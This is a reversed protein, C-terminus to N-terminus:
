KGSSWPLSRSSQWRFLLLTSHPLTPHCRGHKLDKRKWSEAWSYQGLSAQVIGPMAEGGAAGESNEAPATGAEAPGPAGGGAKNGKGKSNKNKKKGATVEASPLSAEPQSGAPPIEKSPVLEGEGGDKKKGQTEKAPPPSAEPQSGGPPDELPAQVRKKKKHKRENGQAPQLDAEPQSGVAPIHDSPAHERRKKKKIPKTGEAPLQSPEAQSTDESLAQGREKKEEKHKREGGEATQLDAEPQSRVAPLDESPGQEGRREKKKKPKAGEASLQSSEPQSEASPYEPPVHVGKRKKKNHKRETGEAILRTAEPQTGEPRPHPGSRVPLDIVAPVGTLKRKKEKPKPGGEIQPYGKAGPITPPISSADARKKRKTHTQASDKLSNPLSSEAAADTNNLVATSSKELTREQNVRRSSEVEHETKVKKKKKEPVELVDLVLQAM